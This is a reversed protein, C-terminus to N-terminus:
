HSPAKEANGDNYFKAKNIVDLSNLLKNSIAYDLMQELNDKNILEQKILLRTLQKCNRDLIIQSISFIDDKSLIIRRTLIDKLVKNNLTRFISDNCNSMDFTVRHGSFVREIEYFSMLCHDDLTVTLDEEAVNNLFREGDNVDNWVIARYMMITFEDLVNVKKMPSIENIIFHFAAEDYMQNIQLALSLKQNTSFNDRIYKYIGVPKDMGLKDYFNGILFNMAAPEPYLQIVINEDIRYGKDCLLALFDRDRFYAASAAIFSISDAPFEMDVEFHRMGKCIERCRDLAIGLLRYKGTIMLFYLPNTFYWTESFDSYDLVNRIIYEAATDDNMLCSVLLPYKAPADTRSKYKKQVEYFVKQKDHLCLVSLILSIELDCSFMDTDWYSSVENDSVCMDTLAQRFEDASCSGVAARIARDQCIFECFNTRGSNGIPFGLM